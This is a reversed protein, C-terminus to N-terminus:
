LSGGDIVTLGANAGNAGAPGASGAPGVLSTPRGWGRASKPGYISHSRGDIYFDGVIGTRGKPPGSGHLITVIEEKASADPAPAFVFGGVTGSVM